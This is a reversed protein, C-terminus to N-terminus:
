RSVRRVEKKAIPVYCLAERRKVIQVRFLKSILDTLKKFECRMCM